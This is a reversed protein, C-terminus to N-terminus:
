NPHAGIIPRNMRRSKDRKAPKYHDEPKLYYPLHRIERERQAKHRKLEERCRSCRGGPHHVPEECDICFNM